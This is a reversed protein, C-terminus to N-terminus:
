LKYLFFATGNWNMWDSMVVTNIRRTGHNKRMREPLHPLLLCGYTIANHQVEETQGEMTLYNYVLWDLLVESTQGVLNIGIWEMRKNLIIWIEGDKILVALICIYKSIENTVQHITSYSHYDSYVFM